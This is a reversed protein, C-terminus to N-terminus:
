TAPRASPWWWAASRPPRTAPGAAGSAPQARHGPGPPQAGGHAPHAGGDRRIGAGPLLGGAPRRGRLDLVVRAAGGPVRGPEGQREWRRDLEAGDPPESAVVGMLQGTGHLAVESLDFTTRLDSPRGERYTLESTDSVGTGAGRGHAAAGRRGRPGARGPPGSPRPGASARGFLLGVTWDAVLRLKGPSGPMMALHYTRAAFWAPFGRLRLGLMTAVAKHQGMDVFVGLTRYRLKRPPRGALARAVNEAAVQGQRLAHQATPPCAVRRRKAPDPVAAADGIAWVHEDGRVRCTADADIRGGPALPLGMRAVVPAPAVGTTWCLTRTPIEEGTSLRVSSEAVSDIRTNTRIEMGRGRLERTAHAALSAPIEHMVRDQAEVLMWRTGDLRCRPYRDLADAVYDQLEAIGELGAYGAGVFVFTLYARREQPDDLTEAMELHQIARNRLAIADPLTKFGIAHEALGPM